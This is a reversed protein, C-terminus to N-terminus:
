SIWISFDERKQPYFTSGDEAIFEWIEQKTGFGLVQSYRCQKKTIVLSFSLRGLAQKLLEIPLWDLDHSAIADPFRHLYNILHDLILKDILTSNLQLRVSNRDIDPHKQILSQLRLSNRDTLKCVDEWCTLEDISLYEINSLSLSSKKKNLLYSDILEKLMADVSINNDTALKNLRDHQETNKM